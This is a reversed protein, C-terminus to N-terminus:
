TNPLAVIKRLESMRVTFDLKAEDMGIVVKLLPNIDKGALDALRAKRPLNVLAERQVPGESTVDEGSEGPDIKMAMYGALGLVVLIGALVPVAFGRNM